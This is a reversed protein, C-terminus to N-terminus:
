CLSSGTLFYFLKACTQSLRLLHERGGTAQADRLTDEQSSVAGWDCISYFFLLSRHETQCAPLNFISRLKTIIYNYSKMM